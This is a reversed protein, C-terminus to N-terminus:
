YYDEPNAYRDRDVFPPVDGIHFSVGVRIRDKKLDKPLVEVFGDVNRMTNYLLAEEPVVIRTKPTTRRVVVIISSVGFWPTELWYDETVRFLPRDEPAPVGTIGSEEDSPGAVEDSPSDGDGGTVADGGDSGDTTGGESEAEDNQQSPRTDEQGIPAQPYFAELSICSTVAIGFLAVLGVIPVVRLVSVRWSSARIQM